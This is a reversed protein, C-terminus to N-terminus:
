SLRWLLWIGYGFVAGAIELGLASLLGAVANGYHESDERGRPTEEVEASRGPAAKSLGDPSSDITGLKVAPSAM